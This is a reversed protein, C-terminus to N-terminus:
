SRHPYSFIAAQIDRTLPLNFRWLDRDQVHEILRPALKGPFYHNWAMMAGSRELDFEVVVGEIPEALDEQATKHHDLILISNAKKAMEELVPRKYSFDVMIVDRGAVDPPPEQYVGPHFEMPERDIHGEGYWKNVVWAATFGDACNGHYICLPM